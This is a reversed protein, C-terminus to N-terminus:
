MGGTFSFVSYDRGSHRDQPNQLSTVKYQWPQQLDAWAEKLIHPTFQSRISVLHFPLLSHALLPCMKHLAWM